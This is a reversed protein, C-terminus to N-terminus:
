ARRHGPRLFKQREFHDRVYGAVWERCWEPVRALAARRAERSDLAIIEAAYQRPRKEHLM